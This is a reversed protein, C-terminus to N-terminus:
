GTKRLKGKPSINRQVMVSTQSSNTGKLVVNRASIDALHNGKAELLDLKSHRQIKNIALVALSFMADLLEQVYPGNLFKNGSSTFSGHQKRLM